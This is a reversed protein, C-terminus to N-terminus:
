SPDGNEGRVTGPDGRTLPWLSFRSDRSDVGWGALGAVTLVIFILALLLFAAM